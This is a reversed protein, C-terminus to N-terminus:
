PERSAQKDVRRALEFLAALRCARAVGVGANESWQRVSLSPLSGLGYRRVIREALKLVDAKRTGNGLIVALLEVHSLARPGSQMMKERPRLAPPMESVRLAPSPTPESYM